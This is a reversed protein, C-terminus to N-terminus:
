EPGAWRPVSRWTTPTTVSQSCRCPNEDSPLLAAVPSDVCHTDGARQVADAHDFDARQDRTRKGAPQEAVHAGLDDLDLWRARGVRQAGPPLGFEVAMMEEPGHVGAVLLGDRQVQPFLRAPFQEELQDLARVDDDLVKPGARQLFPIEAVVNQTFTVPADDQHPHGAVPLSAGLSVLGAVGGDGLRGAAQPVQVAEWTSG